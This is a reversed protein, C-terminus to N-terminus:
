SRPHGLRRNDSDLGAITEAATSVSCVSLNNRTPNIIAQVTHGVSAQGTFAVLPSGAM